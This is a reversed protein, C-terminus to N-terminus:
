PDIWGQRRLEEVRQSLESVFANAIRSLPRAAPSLLGFEYSMDPEFPRIQVDMEAADGATVANVIAVGVGAAAFGCATEATAVEVRVRPQLGAKSFIEDLQHRALHRRSLLVLDHGALDRAHVTRKAALRHNGPMVCVARPAFLPKVALGPHNVPLTAIGLDVQHAAVWEVVIRNTRVELSVNLGPYRALFRAVAPRILARTLSPITAIRLQGEGLDRIDQATNLVREVGAFANEVEDYLRIAEPTPELRHRSRDFLALGLDTELKALSRSVAPQTIGLARAARNASGANIVARFVELHRLNIKSLVPSQTEM